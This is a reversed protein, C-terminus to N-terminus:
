GSEMPRVASVKVDGTALVEKHSVRSSPLNDIAGIYGKEKETLKHLGAEDLKVLAEYVGQAYGLHFGARSGTSFGQNFGQQLTQEKGEDLGERFGHVYFRDRRTKWERQLDSTEDVSDADAWGDEEDQSHAEDVGPADMGAGCRWTDQEERRSEVRHSRGHLGARTLDTTGIWGSAFGPQIRRPTSRTGKWQLCPPGRARAVQSTADIAKSNWAITFSLGHNHLLLLSDDAQSPGLPGRFPRFLLWNTGNAPPSFVM